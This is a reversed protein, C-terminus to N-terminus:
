LTLGLYGRYTKGDPKRSTSTFGKRGLTQTFGTRRKPEVGNNRCWTEYSTYLLDGIIFEGPKVTCYEDIWAQVNDLEGRQKEKTTRSSDLEPLGNKGLKYWQMAGEVAWALVGQLAADGLLSHKLSKDETGLHSNPFEILRIRGWVADDDPDANVPHNSSLWIKFQPRYNFHDRHKFACHIEDGGTIQKVKAENFREYQKSESAAVFRCPKLPALDFNQSDGDRNATFTSFNVSAALPRGLLYLLTNTFTGKGSRSPGYLYLLFEEATHGTISYGVAKQLWPLVDPKVSEGITNMWIGRDANPNYEANICYTFRDSPGHTLLEGTRLNLVGNKTNIVDFDNDFCEVNTYTIDALMKKAGSVVGSNPVCNRLIRNHAGTRNDADLSMVASTREKLTQVTARGLAADAGNGVWHTGTNVMWGYENNYIFKRNHHLNVCQANGEDYPNEALFYKKVSDMVVPADQSTIKEFQEIDIRDLETTASSFESETDVADVEEVQIPTTQPQIENLPRISALAGAVISPDFRGNSKVVKTVQSMISVGKLALSIVAQGATKDFPHCRLPLIHPRITNAVM